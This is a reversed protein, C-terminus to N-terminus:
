EGPIIHGVFSTEYARLVRIVTERRMTRAADSANLGMWATSQRGGGYEILLAVVDAHGEVSAIYHATRKHKNRLSVRAGHDILTRVCNINGQRAAIFLPSCNQSRSGKNIDVPAQHTDPAELLQQISPVQGNWCACHLLTYADSDTDKVFANLDDNSSIAAQVVALDSDSDEIVQWDDYSGDVSRLWLRGLTRHFSRRFCFVTLPFVVHMLAYMWDVWPTQVDFLFFQLIAETSRAAGITLLYAYISMFMRVTGSETKWPSQVYLVATLVGGCISIGGRLKHVWCPVNPRCDPCAIATAGFIILVLAFSGVVIHTFRASGTMNMTHQFRLALYITPLATMWFVQFCPQPPKFAQAGSLAVCSMAFAIAPTKHRKFYLNADVGGAATMILLGATQCVGYLLHLVNGAANDGIKLRALRVVFGCLFLVLGYWLANHQMYMNIRSQERKTSPEKPTPTALEMVSADEERHMAMLRELKVQHAPTLGARLETIHSEELDNVDGPEAVGLAELIERLEAPLDEM